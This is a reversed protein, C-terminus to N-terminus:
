LHKRGGDDGQYHLCCAGRFRRYVEVLSCPAVIWFIAMKPQSVYIVSCFLTMVTNDIIRPNMYGKLGPSSFKCLAIEVVLLVASSSNM